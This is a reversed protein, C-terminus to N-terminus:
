DGSSEEKYLKEFYEEAANIVHFAETNPKTIKGGTLEDYVKSVEELVVAYDYLERKVQALDWQGNPQVIDRWREHFKKEVEADVFDTFLTNLIRRLDGYAWALRKVQSEPVFLTDRLFNRFMDIRRQQEVARAIEADTDM